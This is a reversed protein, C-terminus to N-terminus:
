NIENCPIYKNRIEFKTHLPEEITTIEYVIGTNVVHLIYNLGPAGVLALCIFICRSDNVDESLGAIAFDLAARFKAIIEEDSDQAKIGVYYIMMYAEACHFGDDKINLLYMVRKVLEMDVM